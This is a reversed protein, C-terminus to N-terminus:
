HTELDKLVQRCPFPMWLLWLKTSDAYHRHTQVKLREVGM